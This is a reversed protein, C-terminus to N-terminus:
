KYFCEDMGTLLLEREYSNLTPLADQIFKGKRYDWEAFGRPDIGEVTHEKKCFPCKVTVTLLDGMDAKVEVFHSLTM